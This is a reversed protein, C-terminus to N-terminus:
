ADAIRARFAALAAARGLEVEVIEIIEAVGEREDIARSRDAKGGVASARKRDGISCDDDDVRVRRSRREGSRGKACEILEADGVEDEDIADVLRMAADPVQEGGKLRDANRGQDRALHRDARLVGAALPDGAEDVEGEFAGEDVAGAGLGLPDIDRGVELVALGFGADVHEFLKGVVVVFEELLQEAVLGRLRSRM